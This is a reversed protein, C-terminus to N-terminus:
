RDGTNNHDQDNLPHPGKFQRHLGPYYSKQLMILSLSGPTPCFCMSTERLENWTLPLQSQRSPKCCPETSPKDCCISM